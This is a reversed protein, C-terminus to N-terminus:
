HVVEGDPMERLELDKEACVHCMMKVGALQPELNRDTWMQEGCISCPKAVSPVSPEMGGVRRGVLYEAEIEPHEQVRIGLEKEVDVGITDLIQQRQQPTCAAEIGARRMRELHAKMRAIGVARQLESIKEM